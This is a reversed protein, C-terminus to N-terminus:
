GGALGMQPKRTASRRQAQWSKISTKKRRVSSRQRNRLRWRRAIRTLQRLMAFGHAALEPNMAAHPQIFREALQKFAHIVPRAVIDGAAPADGNLHCGLKWFRVVSKLAELAEGRGLDDEM